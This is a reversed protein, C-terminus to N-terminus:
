QFNSNGLPGPLFLNRISNKKTKAQKLTPTEPNFLECVNHLFLLFTNKGFFVSIIHITNTNILIGKVACKKASANNAIGKVEFICIL